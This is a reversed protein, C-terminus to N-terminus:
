VSEIGFHVIKKQRILSQIVGGKSPADVVKEFISGNIEYHYVIGSSGGYNKARWIVTMTMQNPSFSIHYIASSQCNESYIM